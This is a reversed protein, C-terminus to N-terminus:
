TGWTETLLKGYISQEVDVTVPSYAKGTEATYIGDSTVTLAEVTIKESEAKVILATYLEENLM